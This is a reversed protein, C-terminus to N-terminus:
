RDDAGDAPEPERAFAWVEQARRGSRLRAVVRAPGVSELRHADVRRGVVIRGGADVFRGVDEADPLMEIEREGDLGYFLLGGLLAPEAFLGVAEDPGTAAVVAAAIPRPSKEPELKPLVDIFLVGFLAIVICWAGVFGPALPRPRATAWRSTALAIVAGLAGVVLLGQRGADFAAASAEGEPRWASAAAALAAVAAGLAVPWSPGDIRRRTAPDTRLGELWAALWICVAPLAPLLYLGRKGASLSFFVFPIAVWAILLRGALEGENTRVARRSRWLHIAAAPWILSWPLAEVPAQRIFYWVPRVHATGSAFRSWVNDVVAEQFFGAPALAVCLTIWVIVPGAALAVGWVPLIRRVDRARGEMALVVAFCVWPLLGVPGKTLLALATAGHLLLLARRRGRPTSAVRWELFGWLAASEFLALLVDLQARRAFHVFRFSTSLLAVTMWAVATGPYLRRAIAAWLGLTALGALASPLRASWESVGGSLAGLGAALWFYLPPKQTYPEGGLRLLILDEAGREARRLEEAIQAYRPEDPAWLDLGGLGTLLLGISAAALV